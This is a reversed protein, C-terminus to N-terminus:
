FPNLKKNADQLEIVFIDPDPDLDPDPYSYCGSGNTLPMSGRILIRISVLIDRIRFVSASLKLLQQFLPLIEKRQNPIKSRHRLCMPTPVFSPLQLNKVCWRTRLFASRKERRTNYIFAM